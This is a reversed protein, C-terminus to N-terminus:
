GQADPTEQGIAADIAERISTVPKGLQVVSSIGINGAPAIGVIWGIKFRANGDLFNLRKMDKISMGQTRESLERYADDQWAIREKLKANEDRLSALEDRMEGIMMLSPSTIGEDAYHSLYETAREVIDM